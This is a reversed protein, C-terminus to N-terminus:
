DMALALSKDTIDQPHISFKQGLYNKLESNLLKYFAICDDSYLCKETETLPNLQNIASAEVIHNRKTINATDLLPRSQKQSSAKDKRLWIMVGAIILLAILAVIWIRKEVFKNIASVKD